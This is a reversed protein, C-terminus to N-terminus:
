VRSGKALAMFTLRRLARKKIKPLGRRQGHLDLQAVYVKEVQLHRRWWGRNDNGTDKRQKRLQVNGWHEEYRENRWMGSELGKTRMRLKNTMLTWDKVELRWSRFDKAQEVKM